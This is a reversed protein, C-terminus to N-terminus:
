RRTKNPTRNDLINQLRDDLRDMRKEVSDISAKFDQLRTKNGDMGTKLEAIERNLATVTGNVTHIYYFLGSAVAMFVTFFVEASHDSFWASFNSWDKTRRPTTSIPSGTKATEKAPADTPDLDPLTEATPEPDPEVLSSVYEEREVRTKTIHQTRVGAM